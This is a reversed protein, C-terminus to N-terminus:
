NHATWIDATTSVYQLEEFMNKLKVNMKPKEADTNPLTKRCPLGVGGRATIKDILSKFSDSEVASLPLM